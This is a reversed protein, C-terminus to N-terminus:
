LGGHNVRVSIMGGRVERLLIKVLACAGVSQAKELCGLRKRNLTFADRVQHDTRPVTRAHLASLHLHSFRIATVCKM